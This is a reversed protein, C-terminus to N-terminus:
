VYKLIMKRMRMIMLIGPTQHIGGSQEIRRRKKLRQAILSKRKWEAEEFWIDSLLLLLFVKKKLGFRPLTGVTLKRMIAQFKVFGSNDLPREHIM